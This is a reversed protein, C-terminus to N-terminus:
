SIGSNEHFIFADSSHSVSVKEIVDLVAKFSSILPQKQPSVSIALMEYRTQIRRCLLVCNNLLKPELEKRIANVIDVLKPEFKKFYQLLFKALQAGVSWSGDVRSYDCALCMICPEVLESEWIKQMVFDLHPGSRHSTFLAELDLLVAAIETDDSCDAAESAIDIIRKGIHHRIQSEVSVTSSSSAM